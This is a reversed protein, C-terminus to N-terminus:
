ARPADVARRSLGAVGGKNIIYLGAPERGAPYKKIHALAPRPERMSFIRRFFPCM